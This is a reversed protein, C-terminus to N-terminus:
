KFEEKKYITLYTKFDWRLILKILQWKSTFRGLFTQYTEVCYIPKVLKKRYDKM